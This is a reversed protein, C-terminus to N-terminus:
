FKREVTSIMALALVKVEELDGQEDRRIVINVRQVNILVYKSLIIWHPLGGNGNVKVSANILYLGGCLLVFRYRKIM